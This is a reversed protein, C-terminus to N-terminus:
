HNEFRYRASSRFETKKDSKRVMKEVPKRKGPHNKNKSPFSSNKKKSSYKERYKPREDSPKNTTPRYKRQFPQEKNFRGTPKSKRQQTSSADNLRDTTPKYQRQFREDQGKYKQSSKKMDDSSKYYAKKGYSKKHSSKQDEFYKGKSKRKDGRPTDKQPFRDFSRKKGHDRKKSPFDKSSFSKEKSFKSSSDFDTEDLKGKLTIVALRQGIFREIRQLHRRDAPLVFSIAIGEKGARGTRGIRHVYDECFKPLDYNIVHTIDRIDIGRAAVDTAVLFQIKNSRLDRVIRNREHQRKDGHLSAVALGKENLQQALRETNIKTSSFIIAKYVSNENLYNILLNFKQEASKVPCMLQKIQSAAVRESLDVQVPKKLLHKVVSTLQKDLTASFLLTQRTAPTLKAITEIDDIFGMDLMRDAEDLILMKIHSLNIHGRKIHDLLRGPTAVIIDAAPSLQRIQKGYPMGGVVSAIRFKLFKGYSLAAETIQNALERTPMLILIQTHKLNKQESLYHLAPLIFAATKGTGTQASAALDKGQLIYPICKQQVPTPERYGCVAIAKSINSHLNLSAFSM